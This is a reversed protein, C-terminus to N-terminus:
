RALLAVLMALLEADERAVFAAPVALRVSEPGAGCAISGRYEGNKATLDYRCPGVDGAIREPRVKLAIERVGLHGAVWFGEEAPLVDLSVTQNGVLGTIRPAAIVLDAAASGVHGRLRGPFRRLALGEGRIGDRTVEFLLDREGVAFTLSGGPHAALVRNSVSSRPSAAASGAALAVCAGVWVAAKM